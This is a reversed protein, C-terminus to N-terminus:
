PEPPRGAPGPAHRMIVPLLALTAVLCTAICVVALGGLRADAPVQSCVLVGFGLGVTVADIVIARGAVSAADDIAEDPDRGARRMRRFREVLHIAYDVGIGLVMGAFMSTAVGLPTGTWGMVAFTVLVAGACPVVCAIGWRLSRGLITTLAVIVLLSVLLSRVQTTVIAAILAQSVAVDGAFSLTMGAPALHREEYDRVDALLRATDRYNAQELFVAILASGKEDDVIQRARRSGRIREHQQWLFHVRAPDDPIRRTEPDRKGVIFSTTTLFDIPGLVGGVGGVGGPTEDRRMELWTELNGIVRLAAPALLPRIEITCRVRGGELAPAGVRLSGARNSTGVVLRGDDRRVASEVWTVWGGRREATADVVNIHAHVLRAPDVAVDVPLVVSRHDVDTEDVVFEITEAGT